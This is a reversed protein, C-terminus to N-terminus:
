RTSLTICNEKRRLRKASSSLSKQSGICDTDILKAAGVAAGVAAGTFRGVSDMGGERIGIGAAGPQGPQGVDAGARESAGDEEGVPTTEGGGIAFVRAGVGCITMDTRGVINMVVRGAFMIDTRGVAAGTAALGTGAGVLEAGTEVGEGTEDVSGVMVELGIVVGVEERVGVTVSDGLL